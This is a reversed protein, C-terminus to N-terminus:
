LEQWPFLPLGERNAEFQLLWQKRELGGAYGTLKGKAGVVRHCPVVISLPNRGNALGVARSANPDGIRRALEGYSITAGFPIAQLEQWVRKQFDTGAASMPLDFRIRKGEFYEQLQRKTEAFPIAADDHQWNAQILPAHQQDSLYVGTLSTGDSVLLINAVATELTTYYTTM